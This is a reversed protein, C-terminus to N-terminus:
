DGCGNVLYTWKSVSGYNLTTAEARFANLFPGSTARSNEEEASPMPSGAAHSNYRPRKSRTTSPKPVRQFSRPPSGAPTALRDRGPWEMGPQLSNACAPAWTNPQLVLPRPAAGPKPFLHTHVLSLTSPHAAMM